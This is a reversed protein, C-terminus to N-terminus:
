DAILVIGEQSPITVVKIKDVMELNANITAAEVNGYIEKTRDRSQVAVNLDIEEYISSGDIIQHADEILNHIDIKM